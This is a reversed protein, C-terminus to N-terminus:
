LQGFVIGIQVNGSMRNFGVESFFGFKDGLKVRGQGAIGFRLGNSPAYGSEIEEFVFAYGLTAVGCLNFRMDRPLFHYFYRGYVSSHTFDVNAYDFGLDYTSEVHGIHTGLGWSMKDDIKVEYFFSVPPITYTVDFNEDKGWGHNLAMGLFWVVNADSEYTTNNNGSGSSTGGGTFQAHLTSIFIM